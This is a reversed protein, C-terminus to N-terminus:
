LRRSRSNGKKAPAVPTVRPTGCFTCIKNGLAMQHCHPCEQFHSSLPAPAEGTQHNPEHLPAPRPKHKFSVVDKWSRNGLFAQIWDQHKWALYALIGAVLIMTLVTISTWQFIWILARTLVYMSVWVLGRKKWDQELYYLEVLYLSIIWLGMWVFTWGLPQIFFAFLSDKFRYWATFAASVAKKEAYDAILGAHASGAELIVLVWSLWLARAKM